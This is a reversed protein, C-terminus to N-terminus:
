FPLDDEDYDQSEEEDDLDIDPLAEQKSEAKPTSAKASASAFVNVKEVVLENVTVKEGDKDNYTRVQWRGVLEMRSGKRAQKVIYEAQKDWAVFNIFDTGYEGNADRRERSVAIVGSAISTGNGSKKLEGDRVLCGSLICVNM